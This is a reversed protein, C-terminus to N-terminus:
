EFFLDYITRIRKYEESEEDLANPDIEMVNCLENFVETASYGEVDLRGNDGAIDEWSCEGPDDQIHEYWDGTLEEWKEQIFSSIPESLRYLECREKVEEGEMFRRAVREFRGLKVIRKNMTM